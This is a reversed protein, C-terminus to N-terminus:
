NIANICEGLRDFGANYSDSGVVQGTETNTPYYRGNSRKFCSLDGARAPLTSRCDEIKDHGANYGEDGVVAGTDRRAPYYRGTSQKLCVLGSPRHYVQDLTYQLNLKVAALDSEPLNSRDVTYYIQDLLQHIEQRLSVVDASGAISFVALALAFLRTM